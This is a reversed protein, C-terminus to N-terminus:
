MDVEITLRIGADETQCEQVSYGKKRAEIKAAEAAYFKKINECNKGVKGVLGHGGAFNDWNLDFTGDQNESIGMEYMGEEGFSIAHDCKGTGYARFKKVGEKITGGLREIAKKLAGFSKIEVNVKSVHSM